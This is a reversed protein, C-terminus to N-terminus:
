PTQRINVDIAIGRPVPKSFVWTMTGDRNAGRITPGNTGQPRMLVVWNTQPTFTGTPLGREDMDAKPQSVEEVELVEFAQTGLYALQEREMRTHRMNMFAAAVLADSVPPPAPPMISAPVSNTGLPLIIQSGAPVTVTVNSQAIAMWTGLIVGVFPSLMIAWVLHKTM